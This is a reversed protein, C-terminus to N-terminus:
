IYNYKKCIYEANKYLLSLSTQDCFREELRLLAKVGTEYLVGIKKYLLYIIIGIIIAVNAGITFEM